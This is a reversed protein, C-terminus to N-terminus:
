CPSTLRAPLAHACRPVFTLDRNGSARQRVEAASGAEAVRAALPQAQAGAVSQRQAFLDASAADRGQLMRRPRTPQSRDFALEAGAESDSSSASSSGAAGAGQHGAAAARGSAPM